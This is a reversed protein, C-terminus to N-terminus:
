EVREIRASFGSGMRALEEKGSQIKGLTYLQGDSGTGKYFVALNGWPAYYTFDGPMQRATPSGSTNLKRSLYTIKEAGAYDKFEAELPLLSLFDLGAPNSYVGVIVEQNGYTIRIKAAINEMDGGREAAHAGGSLLLVAVFALITMRTM